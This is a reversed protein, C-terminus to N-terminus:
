PAPSAVSAGKISEADVSSDRSWTMFSMMFVETM